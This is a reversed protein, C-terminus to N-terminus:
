IKLQTKESIYNLKKQLTFSNDPSVLKFVAIEEEIYNFNVNHKISINEFIDKLVITSDKNQGRLQLVHVFLSFIVILFRNYNM